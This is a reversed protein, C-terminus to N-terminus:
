THSLGSNSLDEVVKTQYVKGLFWHGHSWFSMPGLDTRIRIEPGFIHDAGVLNPTSLLKQKIFKEGFHVTSATPGGLVRNQVGRVGPTPTRPRFGRM